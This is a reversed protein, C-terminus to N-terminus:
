QTVSLTVLTSRVMRRVGSLLYGGVEDYYQRSSQKFVDHTNRDINLTSDM